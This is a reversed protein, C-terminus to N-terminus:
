LDSYEDRAGEGGSRARERYSEFKPGFLTEPRLYRAMRPDGRWESAMQRCVAEFDELRYGERWRARVLRRTRESSPRYETGAAGNLAAVVEAYPIPGEEGQVGEESSSSPTFSPPIYESERKGTQKIAQDSAQKSASKSERESAAESVGNGGQSSGGKSGAKIRESSKDLVPRVMALAMKQADTRPEPEAGTRLYRVIMGILENGERANSLELPGDILSDLVKMIDFGEM